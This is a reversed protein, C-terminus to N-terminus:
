NPGKSLLRIFPHHSLREYDTEEFAMQRDDCDQGIQQYLDNALDEADSCSTATVKRVLSEAERACGLWIARHTEEHQKAEQYFRQFSEHVDSSLNASNKLKPLRITFKMHIQFDAIRCIGGQQRTRLTIKPEVSASAYARGGYIQPGRQSMSTHLDVASQGAILYYTYKTDSAHADASFPFLLM